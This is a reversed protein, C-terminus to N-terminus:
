FRMDSALNMRLFELVRTRFRETHVRSTSEAADADGAILHGLMDLHERVIDELHTERKGATSEEYALSIHSLRLGFALLQAYNKAILGNGCASAIAQHFALNSQAMAAVDGITVAREFNRREEDIRKLDDNNRRLAAWRTVMRQNADLAEFFERVATLDIGSVKAARNPLLEVLGEASLHILAERIPTRSLGLSALLEQEDFAKGPALELSLIKSRIEEYAWRAGSGKPRKVTATKTMPEEWPGYDYEKHLVRAIRPSTAHGRSTRASSVDVCKPGFIDQISSRRLFSRPGIGLRISIRLLCQCAFLM